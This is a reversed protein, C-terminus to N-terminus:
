ALAAGELTLVGLVAALAARGGASLRPYAFAALALLVLSALGRLLHDRPGTGPEPAVFADVLAHLAVVAAAGSFLLVDPRAAGGIAVPLRRWSDSRPLHLASDHM